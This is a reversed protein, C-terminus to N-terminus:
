GGSKRTREFGGSWDKGNRTSLLLNLLQELQAIRPAVREFDPVDLRLYKQGHVLSLRVGKQEKQHGTTLVGFVDEM